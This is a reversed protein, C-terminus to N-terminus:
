PNGRLRRVWARLAPQERAWRYCRSWLAAVAVALKGRLSRGVDAGYLLMTSDAWDRKYADDGVTLDFVALRETICWQVVADLLIRGPSYRAWIGNEYGPMLWYFRQAHRMGWHTAILEDGAYLASVVIEGDSIQQEALSQYFALYAPEAFLDRSGSAQWRRSKQQAMTDIVAARQAPAVRIDIRVAGSEGLRRLCRRTDAFVRASRTKQFEEFTAPLHAAHAVGSITMGTLGIFPNPVQEARLVMYPPQRQLRVIDLPPLCDLIFQWLAAFSDPTLAAAFAPEILPGLYDTVEGGAFALMRLGRRRVIALPLWILSRGDTASLEAVCPQWGQAQGLTQQWVAQWAFTQFGYGACTQEAARWRVAAADLTSYVTLQAAASLDIRLSAPLPHHRM